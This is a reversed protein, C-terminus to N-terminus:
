KHVSQHENAIRRLKPIQSRTYIGGLAIAAIAPIQSTWVGESIPNHLVIFARVVSEIIWLAAWVATIVRYQRRFVPCTEWTHELRQEHHPDGRGAFPKSSDFIFARGVFCTYLLYLGALATFFSPKLLVIRADRTAVLLIVSLAIELVVLTGVADLRRRWLTRTLAYAATVAGALTLAWFDSFGLAHLLAYGALPLLVDLLVALMAWRKALSM